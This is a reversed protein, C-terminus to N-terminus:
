IIGFEKDYEYIKDVIGVIEDWNYARFIDHIDDHVDRNWPYDLCVRGYYGSLLNDINDDILVDAKLLGKNNICIINKEPVVSFYKQLWAVKWPFTVPATATAFYVEYNQDVFHKIGRQSGKRPSLSDWLKKENLLDMLHQADDYQLCKFFDYDNLDDLTLNADYTKNYLEILKEILNNVISDVDVAVVFKNM